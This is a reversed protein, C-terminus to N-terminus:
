TYRVGDLGHTLQLVAQGFHLVGDPDRKDQHDVTTGYALQLAEDFGYVVAIM